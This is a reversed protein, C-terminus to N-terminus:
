EREVSLHSGFQKFEGTKIVIYHCCLEATSFGLTGHSRSHTSYCQCEVLKSGVAAHIHTRIVSEDLKRVFESCSGADHRMLLIRIYPFDHTAVTVPYHRCFVLYAHQAAVHRMSIMALELKEFVNQERSELQHVLAEHHCVIHELM